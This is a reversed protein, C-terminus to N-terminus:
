KFFRYNYSFPRFPPSEQKVYTHNSITSNNSTVFKILSILLFTYHLSYIM